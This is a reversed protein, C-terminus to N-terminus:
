RRSAVGVPLRNRELVRAPRRPQRVPAPHLRGARHDVGAAPLRRLRHQRGPDLIAFTAIQTIWFLVGTGGYVQQAMLAIGTPDLEGRYPKLHAALISIGLFTTGLIM